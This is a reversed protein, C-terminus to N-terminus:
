RILVAWYADHEMADLAVDVITEVREDTEGYFNSLIRYLAQEAYQRRYEPLKQLRQNVKKQLRAKQLSM